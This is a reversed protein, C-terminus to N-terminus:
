PDTGQDGAQGVVKGVWGFRDQVEGAAFCCEELIEQVGRGVELLECSVAEFESADFLVVVGSGDGAGAELQVVGMAFGVPVDPYVVGKSRGGRGFREVYHDDVWLGSLRAKGGFVITKDCNQAGARYAEYTVTLDLEQNAKAIQAAQQRFQETFHDPYLWTHSHIDIIM